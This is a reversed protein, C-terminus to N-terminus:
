RTGPGPTAERCALLSEGPIFDDGTGRLGAAREGTM